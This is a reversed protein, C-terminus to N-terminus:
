LFDRYFGPVDARAITNAEATPTGYVTSGAPKSITFDKDPFDVLVLAVKWKKVSPQISPDSYDQGPIAHYDSWTLNDQFSWNQPDVPAPPGAARAPAIAVAMASLALAVGAVVHTGRM